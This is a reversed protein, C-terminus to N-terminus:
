SEVAETPSHGEPKAAENQRREILGKRVPRIM